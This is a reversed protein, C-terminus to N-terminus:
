WNVWWTIAGAIALWPTALLVLSILFCGPAPKSGHNGGTKQRNRVQRAVARENRDDWPGFM